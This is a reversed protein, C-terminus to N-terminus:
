ISGLVWMLNINLANQALHISLPTTMNHCLESRVQLCVYGFCVWEVQLGGLLNTPIWITQQM